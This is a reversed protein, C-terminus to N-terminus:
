CGFVVPEAVVLQKVVGWLKMGVEQQLKEVM